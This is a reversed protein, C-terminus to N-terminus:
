ASLAHLDVVRYQLDTDFIRTGGGEAITQRLKEVNNVQVGALYDVGFEVLDYLWPVTPGMLVLRASGALCALRPFTKNILTTATIFVWDADALLYESAADPLDQAGPQRELVTFDFRQVYSELGPYRGIVVVRQGVMQDAFYEFVALNSPGVAKIPLARQPLDSSTNIAANLAAMGVTARYPDWDCLWNALEAVSRGVLTGPWSLTRTALGPSMALGVGSATRCLTWTLGILVEDIAEDANVASLLREYVEWPGTGRACGAM